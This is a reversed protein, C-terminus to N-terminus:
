KCMCRGDRRESNYHDATMFLHGFYTWAESRPRSKFPASNKRGSCVIRLELVSKREARSLASTSVNSNTKRSM